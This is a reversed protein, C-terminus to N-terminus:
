GAPRPTWMLTNNDRNAEDNANCMESLRAASLRPSLVGNVVVVGEKSLAFGVSTCVKAPIGSATVSISSDPSRKVVMTGGYINEPVPVGNAADHFQQQLRAVRDTADGSIQTQVVAVVVTAAIALVLIVLAIKRGTGRRPHAKGKRGSHQPLGM